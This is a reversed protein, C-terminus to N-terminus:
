LSLPEAAPFDLLFRSKPLFAVSIWLGGPGGIQSRKILKNVRSKKQAPPKAQITPPSKHHSPPRHANEAAPKFIRRCLVIKLASKVISQPPNAGAMVRRTEAVLPVIHDADPNNANAEHTPRM